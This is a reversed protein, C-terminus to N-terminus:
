FIPPEFKEALLARELAAVDGDSLPMHPPLMRGLSAVGTMKSLMGKIAPVLPKAQIVLRLPTLAAQAAASREQYVRQAQRSTLNTTASICGAGGVALIDGLFQESGAFVHFGPLDEAMRQMNAFDGSSDKAGAVIDGFRRRLAAIVTVSFGVGSFQPIHYLYLRLRDTAVRELLATFYAEIQADSLPKYFFPPLCLVHAVGNDLCARILTETDALAPTGVGPMLREKPLHRALHAIIRLRDQLAISNAEGTTGLVGLGDCGNALLWRSHTTLADLDPTLDANLPTVSAAYVGHPQFDQQTAEPM